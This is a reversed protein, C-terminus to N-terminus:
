ERHKKIEENDGRDARQHKWYYVLCPVLTLVCAANLALLGLPRFASGTFIEWVDSISFAVLGVVAIMAVRQSPRSFGRLRVAIVVAAGFWVLSEVFNFVGLVWTLTEVTTDSPVFEAPIFLTITWNM